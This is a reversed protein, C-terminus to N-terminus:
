ELNPVLMYVLLLLLLLLLLAIVIDPHQRRRAATPPPPLIRCDVNPPLHSPPAFCLPSKILHNHSPTATAATGGDM